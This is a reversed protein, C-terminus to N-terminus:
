RKRQVRERQPDEMWEAAQKLCLEIATFSMDQLDAWSILRVEFALVKM